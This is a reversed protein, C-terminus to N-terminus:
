RNVVFCCRHEHAPFARLNQEGACRTQGLLDKVKRRRFSGHPWVAPASHEGNRHM